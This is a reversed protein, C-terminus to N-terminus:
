LKWYFIQNFNNTTRSKRVITIFILNLENAEQWLKRAEEKKESVAKACM